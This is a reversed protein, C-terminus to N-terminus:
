WRMQGTRVDYARIDGPTCPLGESVRGGVILLDKYIVGPSTLIISQKAPDRGVGERLDIRGNVGFSAIRKGTGADLAYVYNTVAALIRKEGGETWYAVGRNPGRGVIGSDFKWIEHGTAADLAIIKHQPTVAYLVGGAVLPQCQTGGPGEGSDYIWAVQLQSVNSRDIQTLPSYRIGNPGGGYAPWEASSNDVQRAAAVPRGSLAYSTVLLAGFTV